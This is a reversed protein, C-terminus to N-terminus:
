EIDNKYLLAFVLAMPFLLILTASFTSMLIDLLILGILMAFADMIVFICRAMKLSVRPNKEYLFLPWKEALISIPYSILTAILFFWIIDWISDSELYGMIEMFSGFFAAIFSVVAFLLVALKIITIPGVNEDTWMKKM